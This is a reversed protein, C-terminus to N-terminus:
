VHKSYKMPLPLPKKSFYFIGVVIAYQGTTFTNETRAPGRIDRLKKMEKKAKILNPVKNVFKLKPKEPLVVDVNAFFLVILVITLFFHIRPVM